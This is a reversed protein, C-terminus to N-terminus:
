VWSFLVKVQSQVYMMPSYPWASLYTASTSAWQSSYTLKLLHSWPDESLFLTYAKSHDWLTLCHTIQPHTIWPPFSSHSPGISFHRQIPFCSPLSSPHFSYYLWYLQLKLDTSLTWTYFNIPSSWQISHIRQALVHAFSDNWSDRLQLNNKTDANACM